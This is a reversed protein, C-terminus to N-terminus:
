ESIGDVEQNTANETLIVSTCDTCLAVDGALPSFNVSFIRDLVAVLAARTTTDACPVAITTQLNNLYEQWGGVSMHDYTIHFQLYKGTKDAFITIPNVQMGALESVRYIGGRGNWGGAIYEQQAVDYGSGEEFALEQVATVVGNCSFGEILSVEISTGRPYLYNLNIACYTKVAEINSTLRIGACIEDYTLILTALEAATVTPNTAAIANVTIGTGGASVLVFTSTSGSTVAKKYITIVGLASSAQYNSTASANIAAAIKTAVGTTTDADLIAVDFAETGVTISITGDATPATNVTAVIKNVFISATFLGDPDANFQSVFSTVVEYCSGEPCANCEETCCSSRFAFTKGFRNYGFSRYIDQNSFSLKIAYDTDCKAKFDTIDVIQAQAKSYCRSTYARVNRTQISQGASKTLENVAAAGDVIHGVAIFVNNINNVAVASDISLGTESSFVGIQGDALSTIPNGAALISQDGKTVLVQFVPNETAM